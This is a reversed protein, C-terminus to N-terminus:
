RARRQFSELLDTQKVRVAELHQEKVDAFGRIGEPLGAIEVAIELNESSLGDLLEGIQKEYDVILQRELRRHAPWGFPDLRTGRLFKLPALWAFAKLMWPGVSLKRPRGTDPDKAFFVQPALHLQIKYDGEFETEIQQRFAGDTYLRAVEYEDKYAMLKAYYRAVGEALKTSGPQIRQEAATVRDVLERYRVAYAPSQYDTLFGM